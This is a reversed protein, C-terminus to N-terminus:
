IGMVWMALGLGGIVTVTGVCLGVLTVVITVGETLTSPQSCPFPHM